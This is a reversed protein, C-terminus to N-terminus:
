ESATARDPEGNAENARDDRWYPKVAVRASDLGLSTLAAAVRRTLHLEGFVYAAADALRLAATARAVVACLEDLDDMPAPHLAVTVGDAVQPGVAGPVSDAHAAVVLQVTAPAVLAEAMACAAALGSEDVVFLHSSASADLAVKGRPGVAEVRDGVAMTTAWTSGPGDTTTTVWLVVVGAGGDSRRVTYRRFRATSIGPPVSVMVDQGPWPAFGTLDGGLRLERLGEVVDDAGALSLDLAVVGDLRAAVRAVHESTPSM